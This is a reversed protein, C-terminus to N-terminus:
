GIVGSQRLEDIRADDYGLYERLVEDTHQGITCGAGLTSEGRSLTVLPTSRVHEDFIPHEVTTLLGLQDAVGGPDFLGMGLSGLNPVVAACGVDAASLEIEWELATRRRFAASLATVLEDAPAYKLAADVGTSAAVAAWEADTPACLVIWGDSAEYHRYRPSFGYHEDDTVPPSPAGAYEIMSDALLHGMTSLMSTLTVQGGAGRDRAVLGLMMGVSVAIAAMGDPHGAAVGWMSTTATKIEELTLDRGEPGGGNARRAWGSGAAITPALASRRSYPGDVGYGVGHHYIVDPNLARVEDASVGMRAAVGSRYTHLVIDAHRVLGRVIERGEASYADVAISHKGQTVRVATVEPMATQFRIPDGAIPEIKIVKAGFDALMASAFPGAYFTGLDVITIGALPRSRPAVQTSVTALPTTSSPPVRSNAAMARITDGHENSRPAVGPHGPTASMKVMANMQRVPGLDPDDVVVAHEDHVIQPHDLLETGHRYIEAFVETERDFVAQWEETTKSRVAELAREWFAERRAEDPSDTADDSYGPERLADYLGLAKMFAQFHKPTSHAFQLWRGDKTYGNMLGFSLWGTPTRQAVTPTPVSSYADPYRSTIIKIFYSWPDQGMMAQIMTADVRQGFGSREREHLALLTGQQAFLGAGITAGIPTVMVPEGPRGPAISGYTSGTKAMVVAEYAKLHSFPGAHGFGTISTYILTPAFPALQEYGLGYQEAKGAGFSEIVIDAGLALRRATEADDAENLDLEISRKGRLLYPWTGMTRVKSGGPPEITIVDAGFDAFLVSTFASAVGTSLDIVTLGRLAENSM